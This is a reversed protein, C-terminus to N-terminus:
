KDLIQTIQGLVLITAMTRVSFIVKSGHPCSVGSIYLKKSIQPYLIWKYEFYNSYKQM